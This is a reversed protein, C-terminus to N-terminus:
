GIERLNGEEINVKQLSACYFSAFSGVMELTKPIDLKELKELKFCDGFARKEITNLGEQLFFFVRSLSQCKNFTM